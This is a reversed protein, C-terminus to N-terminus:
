AWTVAPPLPRWWIAVAAARRLRVVENHREAVRRGAAFSSAPYRSAFRRFGHNRMPSKTLIGNLEPASSGRRSGRNRPECRPGGGHVVLPLPRGPCDPHQPRRRLFFEARLRLLEIQPRRRLRRGVGGEGAVRGCGGEGLVGG